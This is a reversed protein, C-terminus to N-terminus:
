YFGNSYFNKKTFQVFSALFILIKDFQLMEKTKLWSVIHSECTYFITSVMESM